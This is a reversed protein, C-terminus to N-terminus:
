VSAIMPLRVLVQALENERFCLKTGSFRVICPNGQRVIELQVGQALGLEFLRQTHQPDGVIEAVECSEGPSLRKLPILHGM